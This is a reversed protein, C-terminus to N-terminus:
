IRENETKRRGIPEIYGNARCGSHSGPQLFACPKNGRDWCRAKNKYTCLGMYYCSNTKIYKKREKM